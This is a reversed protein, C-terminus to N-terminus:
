AARPHINCLKYLWHCSNLLLNCPTRDSLQQKLTESVFDAVNLQRSVNVSYMWYSSIADHTIGFWHMLRGFLFFVIGRSEAVIPMFCESIWYYASIESMQHSQVSSTPMAAATVSAAIAAQRQWYINHTGSSIDSGVAVATVDSSLTFNKSFGM